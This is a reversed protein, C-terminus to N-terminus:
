RRLNRKNAEMEAKELEKAFNFISTNVEVKRKGSYDYDPRDEIQRVISEAYIHREGAAVSAVNELLDDPNIYISSMDGAFTDYGVRSQYNQMTQKAVENQMQHMCDQTMDNIEVDPLENTGDLDRM